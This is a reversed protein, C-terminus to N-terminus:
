KRSLSICFDISYIHTHSHDGRHSLNTPMYEDHEISSDIGKKIEPNYFYVMGRIYDGDREATVRSILSNIIQKIRLPDNSVLEITIKKSLQEYQIPPGIFVTEQNEISKLRDLEYNKKSEQLELDKLMTMLSKPPNPDEAIQHTINDIKRKIESLEYKVRQQEQKIKDKEGPHAMAYERDREAILEPDLIYERLKQLVIEEVAIKPIRKADCDLNRHANGCHYYALHKGNRFRIVDGNMLSGCRPCFLLGSFLFSSNARRPHNKNQTGKMPNYEKSNKLNYKQVANWIELNIM